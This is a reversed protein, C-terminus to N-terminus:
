YSSSRRSFSSMSDPTSGMNRCQPRFSSPRKQFPMTPREPRFLGIFFGILWACLQLAAIFVMFSLWVKAIKLTTSTVSM